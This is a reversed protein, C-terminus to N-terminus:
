PLCARVQWRRGDGWGLHFPYWRKALYYGVWGNNNDIQPSGVRIADDSNPVYNGDYYVSVYIPNSRGAGGKWVFLAPKYIKEVNSWTWSTYLSLNGCWIGASSSDSQAAKAPTVFIINSFLLTLVAFVFFLKVKKTM